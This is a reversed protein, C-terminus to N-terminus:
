LSLDFVVDEVGEGSDGDVDGFIPTDVRLRNGKFVIHQLFLSQIDDVLLGDM